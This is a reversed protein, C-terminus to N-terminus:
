EITNPDKKEKIGEEFFLSCFNSIGDFAGTTENLLVICENSLVPQNWSHIRAHNWLWVLIFEPGLPLIVNVGFLGGRKIDDFGFVVFIFSYFTM